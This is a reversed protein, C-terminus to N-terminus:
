IFRELDYPLGLFDLKEYSTMSDVNEIDMCLIAFAFENAEREIKPIYNNGKIRKFFPTSIGKHLLAHGLEHLIVFDQIHEELNNHIVITNCRNNSVTFGLMEDDLETHLIKCGCLNTLEVPNTTDFKKVIKEVEKLIYNKM